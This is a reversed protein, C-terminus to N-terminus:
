LYVDPHQNIEWESPAREAGPEPGPSIGFEDLPVMATMYEVYISQGMKATGKNKGKKPVYEKEHYRGAVMLRQGRYIRKGYPILDEAFIVCNIVDYKPQATNDYEVGYQLRFRVYQKGSGYFGVEPKARVRGWVLVGKPAFLQGM